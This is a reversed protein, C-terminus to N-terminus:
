EEEDDEYEDDEYEEDDGEEEDDEYEEEEGDEDDYEEEDSGEEDSGEEEVDEDEDVDFPLDEDESVEESDEAEEVAKEVEERIAAELEADEIVYQSQLAEVIGDFAKDNVETIIEGGNFPSRYIELFNGSQDVLFVGVRPNGEDDLALNGIFTRGWVASMNPSDFEVSAIYPVGADSLDVFFKLAKPAKSRAM